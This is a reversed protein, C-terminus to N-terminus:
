LVNAKTEDSPEKFHPNRFQVDECLTYMNTFFEYYKCQPCRPYVLEWPEPFMTNTAGIENQRKLKRKVKNKRM